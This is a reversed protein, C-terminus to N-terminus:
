EHKFIVIPKHDIRELMEWTVDTLPVGFRKAMDWVTAGAGSGRLKHTAEAIDLATEVAIESGSIAVPTSRRKLKLARGLVYAIFGGRSCIGALPRPRPTFHFAGISYTKDTDVIVVTVKKGVKNAVYTRIRRAIRSPDKLPLSVYSYPLNSADIGGESGWHLAQLVGAHKLAVQKHVTGERLPYNRMRTINDVKLHCFPGLLYGWVRRMWHKAIFHAGFGVRVTSEDLMNGMATSLAKESITVIDADEVHGKIASAIEELFNEGPRWYRTRIAIAKLNRM